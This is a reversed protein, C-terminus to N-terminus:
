LMAGKLAGLTAYRDDDYIYFKNTKRQTGKHISFLLRPQGRPVNILVNIKNTNSFM